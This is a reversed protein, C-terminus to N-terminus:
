LDNQNDRVGKKLNRYEQRKRAMEFLSSINPVCGCQCKEYHETKSFKEDLVSRSEPQDGVSQFSSKQLTVENKNRALHNEMDYREICPFFPDAITSTGQERNGWREKCIGKVRSSSQCKTLTFLCIEDAIFEGQDEIPIKSIICGEAELLSFFESSFDAKATVETLHRDRVEFSLLVEANPNLDLLRLLLNALSASSKGGYVCDSATIISYKQDTCVKLVQDNNEWTLPEVRVRGTFEKSGCNRDMNHTLLKLQSAKDTLLVNQVLELKLMALGVVGTGSGIDLANVLTTMLGKAKRKEFYAILVLAADWVVCGEEGLTNQEISLSEGNSLDITRIFAM